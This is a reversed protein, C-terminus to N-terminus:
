GGCELGIGISKHLSKYIERELDDKYQTYIQGYAHREVVERAMPMTMNNALPQTAPSLVALAEMRKNNCKDVFPCKSCKEALRSLAM